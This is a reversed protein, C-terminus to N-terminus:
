EAAENFAAELQQEFADWSSYLHEAIEAAEYPTELLPHQGQKGDFKSALSWAPMWGILQGKICWQPEKKEYLQNAQQLAEWEVQSGRARVIYQNLQHRVAM